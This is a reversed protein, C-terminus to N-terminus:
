ALTEEDEKADLYEADLTSIEFKERLANVAESLAELVWTPLGQLQAAIEEESPTVDRM